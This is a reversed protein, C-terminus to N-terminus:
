SIGSYQACMFHSVSTSVFHQRKRLLWHSNERERRASQEVNLVLALVGHAVQDVAQRPAAVAGAAACGVAGGALGHGVVSYGGDAAGQVLDDGLVHLVGLGQTVGAADLLEGADGPAFSVLLHGAGKRASTGLTGVEGLRKRM